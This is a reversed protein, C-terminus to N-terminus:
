QSGIKNIAKEIYGIWALHLERKIERKELDRKSVSKGKTAQDFARLRVRLNALLSFGVDNIEDYLQKGCDPCFYSSRMLGCCKQMMM